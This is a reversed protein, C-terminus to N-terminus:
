TKGRVINEIENTYEGNEKHIILPPQITMPSKSNKQASVIIRKAIKNQYPQMPLVRINGFNKNLTEISDGLNDPKMLMILTGKDKLMINSTKIWKSITQTNEMTRAIKTAESPSSRSEPNHFPPNALVYNYNQEKLIGQMNESEVDVCKIHISEAFKVNEKLKQSERMMEVLEEQKEALTVEVNRCQAAVAFGIVGTGAGMDLIKGKANTPVLSALIIPEIGARHFELKPQFAYFKGNLFADLTKNTANLKM